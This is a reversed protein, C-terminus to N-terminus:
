TTILVRDKFGRNNSCKSLIQDISHNSNKKHIKFFIQGYICPLHNESLNNIESRIM